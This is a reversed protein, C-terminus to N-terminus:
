AVSIPMSALVSIANAYKNKTFAAKEALTSQQFHLQVLGTESLLLVSNGPGQSIHRVRKDVLWRKGYYYNYTGDERLM